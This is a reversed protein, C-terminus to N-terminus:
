PMIEFFLFCWLLSKQNLAPYKQSLPEVGYYNVIVDRKHTDCNNPFSELMIQGLWKDSEEWISKQLNKEAWCTAIMVEM